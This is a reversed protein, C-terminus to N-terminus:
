SMFEIISLVFGRSCPPTLARYGMAPRVPTLAITAKVLGIRIQLAIRRLCTRFCLNWLVNLARQAPCNGDASSGTSEAM